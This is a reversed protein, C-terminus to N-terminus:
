PAPSIQLLQRLKNRQTLLDSLTHRDLVQHFAQQAERLVRRLRCSGVIVCEAEANGVCDLVGGPPETERVLQGLGIRSPEVSLRVGGNRGRVADIYGLRALEQAVKLMYHTSSDFAEAIEAIPVLRDGAIALYMLMRLAYDTFLTLQM